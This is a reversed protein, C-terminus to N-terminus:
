FPPQESDTGVLNPYDGVSVRRVKPLQFVGQGRTPSPHFGGPLDRIGKHEKEAPAVRAPQWSEREVGTVLGGDIALTALLRPWFFLGKLLWGSIEALGM